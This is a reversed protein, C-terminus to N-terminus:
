SHKKRNQHRQQRGAQQREEKTAPKSISYDHGDSRTEFWLVRFSRLSVVAYTSESVYYRQEGGMTQPAIGSLAPTKLAVARAQAECSAHHRDNTALSEVTPIITGCASPKRSPLSGLLGNLGKFFKANNSM